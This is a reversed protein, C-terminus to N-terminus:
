LWEDDDRVPDRSRQADRAWLRDDPNVPLQVLKTWPPCSFCV